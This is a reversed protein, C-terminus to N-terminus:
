EDDSEKTKVGAFKGQLYDAESLLTITVEPASGGIYHMREEGYGETEYGEANALAYIVATADSVPLVYDKWGLRLVAMNQAPTAKKKAM